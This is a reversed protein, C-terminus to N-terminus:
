TCSFAAAYITCHYGRRGMRCLMVFSPSGTQPGLVANCARQLPYEPPSNGPPSQLWHAAARQCRGAGFEDVATFFFLLSNQPLSPTMGTKTGHLTAAEQFAPFIYHNPPTINSGLFLGDLEPTHEGSPRLVTCFCFLLPLWVLALLM